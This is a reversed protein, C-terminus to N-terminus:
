LDEDSDDGGPLQSMNFHEGFDYKEDVMVADDDVEMAKQAKKDQKRRQKLQKKNNQNLQPNLESEMANLVAVNKEALSTAKARTTKEKFRIVPQIPGGTSSGGSIDMAEPAEDSDEEEEDEYEDEDMADDSDPGNGYGEPLEDVNMDITSSEGNALTLMRTHIQSKGKIAAQLDKGETEVIEPLEFEQSWATVIASSVHSEVPLGAQPPVTYFPIRGSNWDQLVARAANELDPIGGKRLKGRQRAVQVLFDRTDAFVPVNYLNMLQEPKCRGVIVEVPSIPDELLEVKVCNRLLVEAEDGERSSQSFVIGPCDLLKISKDLQITQAVKTVGPTSGVNCVKTRKLSNIVSSKGVNPFGIVGVTISTKINANRCYNKLLKMLNDAGLCESSGLLRDSAIDASISSQGLNNRQAQTSAKFAITPFENRLYKLWQEVVERPVLDIKNLILIVRKDAGANLILEEIQRTRCGLPDRADLVELIVDANEVVKKFEKYYAKRSNDKMGAAAADVVNGLSFGDSHISQTSDFMQSRKAADKALQALDMQEGNLGRNKSQLKSRAEKQRDKEEAIKRKTAEAQQLLKEKFPFMNPIGPDKKLKKSQPNAKAEKRQKRHHEAVKKEIKYRKAAVIRKSKAKKAVM